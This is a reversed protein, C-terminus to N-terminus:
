STSPPWLRRFVFTISTPIAFFIYRTHLIHFCRLSRGVTPPTETLLLFPAGDRFFHTTSVTSWRSLSAHDITLRSLRAVYSYARVGGGPPWVVVAMCPMLVGGQHLCHRSPRHFVSKRRGPTTPIRPNITM